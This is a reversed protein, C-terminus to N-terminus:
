FKNRKLQGASEFIKEPLLAIKYRSSLKTGHYVDVKLLNNVRKRDLIAFFIRDKCRTTFSWNRFNPQAKVKYSFATGGIASNRQAEGSDFLKNRM